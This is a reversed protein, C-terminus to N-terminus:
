EVEAPADLFPPISDFRRIYGGMTSGGGQTFYIIRSPDAGVRVRCRCEWLLSTDCHRM